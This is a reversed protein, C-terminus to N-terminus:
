ASHAMTQTMCVDWDMKLNCEPTAKHSLVINPFFVNKRTKKKTIPGITFHFNLKTWNLKKKNVYM